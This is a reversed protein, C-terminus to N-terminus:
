MHINTLDNLAQVHLYILWMNGGSWRRGSSPICWEEKFNSSHCPILMISYRGLYMYLRVILRALCFDFWLIQQPLSDLHKTWLLPVLPKHDIEVLFERRVIYTAFKWVGVYYGFNRKWDSCLTTWDELSITIHFCCSEVKFQEGVHVTPM